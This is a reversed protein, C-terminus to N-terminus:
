MLVETVSWCFFFSWFFFGQMGKIIPNNMYTTMKCYLIYFGTAKFRFISINDQEEQTTAPLFIFFLIFLCHLTKFSEVDSAKESQGRGSTGKKVNEGDPLRVLFILLSDMQRIM